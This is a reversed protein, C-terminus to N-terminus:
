SKAKPQRKAWAAAKREAREKRLRAAAEHDYPKPEMLKPLKVEPQMVGDPNQSAMIGMTLMALTASRM